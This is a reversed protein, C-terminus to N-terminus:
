GPSAVARAAATVAAADTVVAAVAVAAVVTVVAVAVVAAVVTVAGVVAGAIVAEVATEAAGTVAAEAIMTPGTAGLGIATRAIGKRGTAKPDTVKLGIARPVTVRSAKAVTRVNRAIRNIAKPCTPSRATNRRFITAKLTTPARLTPVAKAAM